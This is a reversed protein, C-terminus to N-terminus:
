DLRNLAEKVKGTTYELDDLALDLQVVLEDLLDEGLISAVEEWDNEVANVVVHNHKDHLDRLYETITKKAEVEFRDIIDKVSLSEGQLVREVLENVEEHKVKPKEITYDFLM